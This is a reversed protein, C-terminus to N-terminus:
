PTRYVRFFEFSGLNTLTASAGGVGSVINSAVPIWQMLNTSSEVRFRRGADAMWELRIVRNSNVATIAFPLDFPNNFTMLVALHDSATASDGAL